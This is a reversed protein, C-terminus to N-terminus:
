AIDEEPTKNKFRKWTNENSNADYAIHDTCRKHQLSFDDEMCEVM